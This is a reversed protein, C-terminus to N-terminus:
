NGRFSNMTLTLPDQILPSMPPLTYELKFYFIVFIGFLLLSSNGWIRWSHHIEIFSDNGTISEESIRLFNGLIKQPIVTKLSLKLFNRPFEKPKVMM